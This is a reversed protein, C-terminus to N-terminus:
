APPSQDSLKKVRFSLLCIGACNVLEVVVLPAPIVCQCIGDVEVSLCLATRCITGRTSTSTRLRFKSWVASM